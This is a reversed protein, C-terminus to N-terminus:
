DEPAPSRPFGEAEVVRRAQWLHRREHATVVALATGLPLRLFPIAPSRVRIRALHLGAAERIRASLAEGVAHFAGLVRERPSPEPPPAFSRPAPVRLRPPPELWAVLWRSLLGYRFPGEGEPGEERARGLAEDLVEVYARDTTVLHELCHGVSWADPTPRWGFGREGLPETLAEAERRNEELERIRGALEAEGPTRGGRGM